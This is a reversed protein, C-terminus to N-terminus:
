NNVRKIQQTELKMYGSFCDDCMRWDAVWPNTYCVDILPTESKRGCCECESFYGKFRERYLTFFLMIVSLIVLWFRFGSWETLISKVMLM